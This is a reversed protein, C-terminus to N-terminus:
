CSFPRVCLCLLVCLVVHKGELMALPADRLRWHQWQSDTTEGLKFYPARVVNNVTALTEFRMVNNLFRFFLNGGYQSRFRKMTRGLPFCESISPLRQFTLNDQRRRGETKDLQDIQVGVCAIIKQQLALPLDKPLNVTFIDGAAVYLDTALMDRPATSMRLDKLQGLSRLDLDVKIGNVRPTRPDVTGPFHQIPRPYPMDKQNLPALHNLAWRYYEDLIAEHDLTAPYSPSVTGNLRDVLGHNTVWSTFTQHNTSKKLVIDLNENIELSLGEDDLEFRGEPTLTWSDENKDCPRLVPRLQKRTRVHISTALCYERDLGWEWQGNDQPYWTTRGNNPFPWPVAAIFIESPPFDNVALTVVGDYTDQKSLLVVPGRKIEQGACPRTVATLLFALVTVANSMIVQVFM